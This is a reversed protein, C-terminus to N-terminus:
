EFNTALQLSHRANVGCLKTIGMDGSEKYEVAQRFFELMSKMCLHRMLEKESTVITVLDAGMGKLIELREGVNLLYVATYSADALSTALTAYQDCPCVIIPAFPRPPRLAAEVDTTTTCHVIENKLDQVPLNPLQFVIIRTGQLQSDSVILLELLRHLNLHADKTEIRRPVTNEYMRPFRQKGTM